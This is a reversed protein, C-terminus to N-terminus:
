NTFRVSSLIFDSESMSTVLELHVARTSLCTFIPIYAKIPFTLKEPPLEPTAFVTIINEQMCIMRRFRKWVNVYWLGSQRLHNLTNYVGLHMCSFNTDRIMLNSLHNKGLLIPNINKLKTSFM